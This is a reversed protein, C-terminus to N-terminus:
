FNPKPFIDLPANPFTKRLNALYAKSLDDEGM